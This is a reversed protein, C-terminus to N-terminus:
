IKADLSSKGELKYGPNGVYISQPITSTLLNTGSGILSYDNITIGDRIICGLGIFSNNQVTSNGGFIANSSIFNFDGISNDHSLCTCSEIINAKGLKCNPGIFVNPMIICGEGINNSYLTATTSIYTAIHHGANKCEDFIKKRINNMGTYGIAILIGLETEKFTEKLEEFAIVPIGKINEKEQFAKANTFAIVNMKNEFKIYSYIREAFATEGYIIVNKM